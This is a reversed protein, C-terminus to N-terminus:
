LTLITPSHLSHDSQDGSSSSRRHAVGCPQPAQHPVDVPASPYTFIMSATFPTLSPTSTLIPTHLAESEQSVALTLSSSSSSSSSSTKTPITIKPKPKEVKAPQKPRSPGPASYDEPEMKIGALSSLTASADSDSDSDQIKCIPRHAELVLELKEKQKQLEAIEKQLRSKEDELLDTENQLTDTLERRRNRCKAAALKNRERRIRRRELEEHSLHEDNRRRTTGMALNVSDRIIGPRIFHSHSPPPPPPGQPRTRSLSPYPPVPSRSPGPPHMLSPQVLWQLDQSTTIANLSPVFQSSGPITLQEQTTSTTTSELSAANSGSAGGAYALNGRGHGRYM